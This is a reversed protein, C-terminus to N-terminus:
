AREPLARPARRAPRRRRGLGRGPRPRGGARVRRGQHRHGRPDDRPPGGGLAPVARGPRPRGVPGCAPGSRPDDHGRRRAPVPRPRRAGRGSCRARRGARGPDGRRPPGTRGRGAGGGLGRPGAPEHRDRDPLRWGRHLSGVTASRAPPRGGRGRRAPRAGTDVSRGPLPAPARGSAGRRRLQRGLPRGRGPVPPHNGPDPGTRRGGSTRHPGAPRRTRQGCRAGPRLRRGTPRRLASAGPQRAPGRRRSGGAGPLRLSSGPPAPGRRGDVPGGPRRRRAHVAEARGRPSSRDRGRTGGRGSGRGAGRRDVPGGRGPDIRGSAGCFPATLDNTTLPAAVAHRHQKGM